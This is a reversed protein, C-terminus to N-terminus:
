RMPGPPAPLLVTPCDECLAEGPGEVIQVAQELGPVPVDIAKEVLVAIRRIGLRIDLHVIVDRDIIGAHERERRPEHRIGGAGMGRPRANAM